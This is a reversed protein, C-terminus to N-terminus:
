QSIGKATRFHRSAFALVAFGSAMLLISGPEPVSGNGGPSSVPPPGSPPPIGPNIDSGLDVDLPIPANFNVNDIFFDFFGGPTTLATITVSSGASAFGIRAAGSSVNPPLTFFRSLGTSDQLEYTVPVTNGNLVDLFFNSIAGPFTVTIPNSNFGQFTGYVSSQDVPLFTTKTLIVGGDFTAVGDPVAFISELPENPSGFTSPGTLGQADFTILTASASSALAALLFCAAIITKNLKL